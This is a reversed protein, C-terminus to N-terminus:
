KGNKRRAEIQEQLQRARKQGDTIQQPSMTKKLAELEKSGALSLWAYAEVKDQKLIVGESYYVGLNHQGYAEGNEAAARARAIVMPITPCAPPGAPPAPPPGAPADNPQVQAHAQFAFAHSALALLLLKKM